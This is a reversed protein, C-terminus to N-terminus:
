SRRSHRRAVTMHLVVKAALWSKGPIAATARIVERRRSWPARASFGNM